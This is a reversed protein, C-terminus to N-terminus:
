DKLIKPLISTSFEFFSVLGIGLGYVLRALLLVALGPAYATSASGIAYLIAAM